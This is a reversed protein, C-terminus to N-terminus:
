RMNDGVTSTMPQTEFLLKLADESLIKAKGDPFIFVFMNYKHLAFLKAVRYLPTHCSMSVWKVAVGKALMKNKNTQFLPLYKAQFFGDFVGFALFLAIILFNFNITQFCSVVFLLVFLGVLVYNFIIAIKLAKKRSMYESFVNILVRGGDLPFAPLFNFLALAFNCMAFTQTFLYTTPFLWWFAVTVFGVLLSAIPGAIAIHLEDYGSFIDQYSLCAGYPMLYFSDLKYGLKKAVMAHAFEHIIIAALYLVVLLGYGAVLLIVAFVTFAPHFKKM